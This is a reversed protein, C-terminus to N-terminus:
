PTNSWVLTVNAGQLNPEKSQYDPYIIIEISVSQFPTLTSLTYKTDTNYTGSKVPITVDIVTRPYALVVAEAFVKLGVNYATNPSNNTVTGNIILNDGSNPLSGNLQLNATVSINATVTAAPPSTSTPTATPTATPNVIPTSKPTNAIIAYWFASTLIVAITIFTLATVTKM